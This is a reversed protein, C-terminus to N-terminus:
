CPESKKLKKRANQLEAPNPIYKQIDNAPKAQQPKIPPPPPISSSLPVPLVPQSQTRTIKTKQSEDDDYICCENLFLENIKNRPTFKRVQLVDWKCKMFVGNDNERDIFILESLQIVVSVVNFRKIIDVNSKVANEDYVSFMSVGNDEPLGISMYYPYDNSKRTLTNWYTIKEDINLNSQLDKIAGIFYKDIKKIFVMFDTVEDENHLNRHPLFSITLDRRQKDKVPKIEFPVSMKPTKIVIKKRKGFCGAYISIYNIASKNSKFSSPKVFIIDDPNFSKYDTFCDSM